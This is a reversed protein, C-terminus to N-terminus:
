FRWHLIPYEGAQGAALALVGTPNFELRSLAKGRGTPTSLYREAFFVGAVAGAATMAATTSSVRDHAAGTLVGVGAGMLGGGVAWLAVIQGDEPTHDFRRVLLRDGVLAGVLAGGTLAAAVTRPAPKGNAVFAGGATAGIAASTWLTTVDGPTVRYSAQNAYLYGLPYGALGALAAVGVRARAQAAPDLMHTAGLGTLAALDAGFTSAAVEGDTMGRGFALASATGAISGFFVGAARDHRNNSGAYGLAWGALGGRLATQTAFWSTPESITLARSLEAAAFYSGGGVVLYAASWAVPDNTVTAAFSPGYVALGLLAQDRIFNNRLLGDGHAPAPAPLQRRGDYVSPPPNADPARRATDSLELRRPPNQAGAELWPMALAFLALVTSCCLFRRQNETMTKSSTVLTMASAVRVQM